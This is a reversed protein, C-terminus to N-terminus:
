FGHGTQNSYVESSMPNSECVKALHGGYPGGWPGAMHENLDIGIYSFAISDIARGFRITVTLLRRPMVDLDYYSGENGGWMGLKVIPLRQMSM